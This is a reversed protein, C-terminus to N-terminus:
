KRPQWRREGLRAKRGRFAVGEAELRFRQELGAEGPLAIRGGAALVRHWPLRLGAPAKRLAWGVQRATCGAAEALDGYTTLRGRPIRRVLDWIREPELM